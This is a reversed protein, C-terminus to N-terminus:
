KKLIPIRVTFKTRGVRSEVEITGSHKHIIKRVIDLGLGSGEGIPKTTFFPEFIKGQIDPPIGCGSDIIEVVVHRDQKEVQIELEGRYKMAQIANHILNTWVQNLEEPYCLIPPVEGYRKVVEIGQKILHQYITLVIDIGETISTLTMTGSNNYRSYSKLAFVIKAAQEAAFTINKTNSQITSLNYATEIIFSNNHEQLLPLLPTLDQSVSMRSLYDGLTEANAIAHNTLEVTLQRRLQREERFSLSHHTAKVTTLLSLFDAWREDSLQQMVQPLNHLSSDLAMTVNKISSQIVGLPTNIEHAVGAVLQGLIAMKESQILETQANQLQKLTLELERNKQQIAEESQKRETIDTITGVYGTISGDVGMEAIAQAVLWTITKDPKQFRCETLFPVGAQAAEYWERAIRDREEPHLAEIWNPGAVEEPSLGSMECWRSNVYLCNGSTDTRFVGVPSFETLTAYRQESERLATETLKRDTIDQATGLIKTVRHNEDRAFVVEQSRLWRWSGKKHRMRFENSLIEGDKAREWFSTNSILLPLDDPHLIDAFLSSGHQSFEEPEYGLINIAQRNTYLNQNVIPDYIYLLQPSSNAVQEIFHNSAQLEAEAQKRDSIDTVTGVYGLLEGNSDTEPIVQAYFWIQTGDPRLYRAEGKYFGGQQMAQSWEMMLRGRDEPHVADVWGMKMGAEASRGAMECWRDNVYVCEGSADFRFIGVPAAETLTAYRRESERLAIEVRKRETINMSIGATGIAENSDNVIPTKITEIWLERGDTTILREEVRKQKGSKMVERDDRRYAKALERPWIDLDTLGVLQSPTNGSTQAFPENVALFRGEADKLWAIHPINNLLSLVQQERIKALEESKKLAQENSKRDTIDRCISIQLTEDLLDISNASVEVDCISGDKRRHRTEFKVSKKKLKFEQTGRKIEEPTWKADWDIVNLKTVEEPNYGLIKAFSPNSEIVNGNEDIVVIGDFSADLLLKSRKLEQELAIEAQKRAQIDEVIVVFYQPLGSADRILSGTLNIWRLQGDKCVYRKELSLTSVDGDLLQQYDVLERKLDDIYTIEKFTKELLEAETYGVLECFRQNAQFFQGSLSSRVIGVAAQEFVSRFRQESELLAIEAQKRDSIDIQIGAMRHRNHKTDIRGSSSLWRVKGNPLLVRYEMILETQGQYVKAASAVIRDLDDPHVARMWTDYSPECSNPEYGLLIFNRDSWFNQNTQLDWEWTGAKAGYLALALREESERLAQEAQKRATIDRVVILVERDGCLTIRVEETQARDDVIVEQEYIQLTGTEIAKAIAQMRRQALDPPLSQDVRTGIFDGSKGIVKFTETSIFDLYTGHESVRMVLDPLASLLAQNKAESQRLAKETKRRDSLENQLEQNVQELQINKSELRKTLNRLELHVKVRALLEQAQFPKSIFDVAGLAFGKVKDVMDNLATMFIIPIEKIKPIEKIRRCTEFGDIGPMLVDLLILDIHAYQAQEIAIEGDTAVSVEYGLDTLMQSLVMLNNPNDDVILITERENEIDHM